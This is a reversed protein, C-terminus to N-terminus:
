GVFKQNLLDKIRALEIPRRSTRIMKEEDYDYVNITLVESKSISFSVEIMMSPNNVVTRLKKLYKEKLQCEKRYRDDSHLNLFINECSGDIAFIKYNNGDTGKIFYETDYKIEERIKFAYVYEKKGNEAFAWYGISYPATYKIGIVDNALLATGLSIAQECDSTSTLINEQRKDNQIRFGFFRKIQDEVLYYRGFGGVLAIKLSKNAPNLYDIEKSKMYLEIEQLKENLVNRIVRNYVDVLLGYSIEVDEGKYEITTFEEEELENVSEEIGIGEYESFVAEIDEVSSQIQTEFEYVAKCFKNYDADPVTDDDLLEARKLAEIVVTEMYVIGAKGVNGDVNEGAGTRELTKIQVNSENIGSVETLTIDLTGGGYDVLLVQGNYIENTKKKYNHAFYATAAEPESAVEVEKVFSISELIERIIPIGDITTEQERWIEPVGIVLKNIQEEGLEILAKRLLKEIFAKTIAQPTKEETYGRQFLIETDNEPILMKFAKYIDYNRKGTQTKATVGISYEGNKKNYSVVSPIYPTTLGLTLAEPCDKDKKYIAITTNTSGFDIGVNIM